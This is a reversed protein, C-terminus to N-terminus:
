FHYPIKKKQEMADVQEQNVVADPVDALKDIRKTRNELDKLKEGDETQYAVGKLVDERSGTVKEYLKKNIRYMGKNKGRSIPEYTKTSKSTSKKLQNQLEVPINKYVRIKNKTRYEKIDSITEKLDGDEFRYVCRGKVIKSM